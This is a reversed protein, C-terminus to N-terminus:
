PGLMPGLAQGNVLLKREPTMEIKWIMKAGDLRALNQAVGLMSVLRGRTQEPATALADLIAQMGTLGVTAEGSGVSGPVVTMQGAADLNYLASGAGSPGLAISLEGQPLLAGGLQAALDDAPGTALDIQELALRAPGALDFGSVAVDVTAEDPLLPLAWPPIVAEPYHIGHLTFAERFLGDAVVGHADLEVRASDFGFEGVLTKVTLRGLDATYEMSDFLPLAAAVAAKLGGQDAIIAELSPHAALFAALDLLEATRLGDFAGDISYGALAVDLSMGPRGQAAPIQMTEVMGDVQGQLRSDVGGSTGTQATTDYRMKDTRYSLLTRGGGPQVVDESLTLGNLEVHSEALAMLATDFTGSWHGQEVAVDLKFAGPIDVHLAVPQDDEVQWRGGGQDTLVFEFPSVSVSGQGPPLVAAFPALDLRVRYSEGEPTVTVVGPLPGLYRRFAQELSIAGGSTAPEALAPGAALILLAAIARRM